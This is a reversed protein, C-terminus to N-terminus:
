LQRLVAKHRQGREAKGGSAPATFIYSPKVTVM